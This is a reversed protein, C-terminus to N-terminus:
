VLPWSDTSKRKQLARTIYKMAKKFETIDVALDWNVCIGYYRLGLATAQVLYHNGKPHVTVELVATGPDAFVMNALGAGFMGIIIKANKFM